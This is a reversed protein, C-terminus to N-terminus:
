YRPWTVSVYEWGDPNALDLMVHMTGVEPVPSAPM